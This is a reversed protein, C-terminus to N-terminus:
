GKVPKQFGREMQNAQQPQDSNLPGRGSTFTAMNCTKSELLHRPPQQSGAIQSNFASQEASVLGETTAGENTLNRHNVFPSNASDFNSGEKTGKLGRGRRTVLYSRLDDESDLKRGENSQVHHDKM